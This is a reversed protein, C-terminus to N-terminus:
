TVQKRNVKKSTWFLLLFLCGFDIYLGIEPVASSFKQVVTAEVNTIRSKFELVRGM